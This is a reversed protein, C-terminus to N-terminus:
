VPRITVAVIHKWEAGSASNFNLTANGNRWWSWTTVTPASAAEITGLDDMGTGVIPRGTANQAIFAVVVDSATTGGPAALNMSTTIVATSSTGVISTDVGNVAVLHWSANQVTSPYTIDVTDPGSVTGTGVYLRIGMRDNTSVSSYVESWTLGLGSVSSPYPPTGATAGCTTFLFVLDPTGAPDVPATSFSTGDTGDTGIDLVEFTDVDGVPIYVILTGDALGDPISDGEELYIIPHYNNSDLHDQVGVDEADLTVDGSLAQGNITRTTPVKTSDAVTINATGDFAVGNITRATTLKAASAVVKAADATNNVNGLGVDSKDLSINSSLAKGNVTRTDPVGGLDSLDTDGAMATTSSTGIELNSTGAGIAERAEEQGGATLVAKGVTSADTINDSTIDEPEANELDGVRNDLQTLATNLKEDWVGDDVGRQPLDLAM